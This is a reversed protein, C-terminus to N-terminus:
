LLKDIKAARNKPKNVVITYTFIPAFTRSCTSVRMRTVDYFVNEIRLLSDGFGLGTGDMLRIMTTKVKMTNLDVMSSNITSLVRDDDDRSMIEVKM